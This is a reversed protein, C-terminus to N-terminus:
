EKNANRTKLINELNSRAQDLFSETNSLQKQISRENLTKREEQAKIKEMARGLYKKLEVIKAQYKPCMGCATADSSAASSEGISSLLRKRDESIELTRRTVQIAQDPTPASESDFPIDDKVKRLDELENWIELVQAEKSKIEAEFEQVITNHEAKTIWNMTFDAQYENVKQNLNEALMGNAVAQNEFDIKKMTEAQLTGELKYCRANLDAITLDAAQLRAEVKKELDDIVKKAAKVEANLSEKELKHAEIEGKREQLVTDQKKLLEKLCVIEDELVQNVQSIEDLDKKAAELKTELEPNSTAPISKNLSQMERLNAVSHRASTMLLDLSSGNLLSSLRGDVSYRGVKTSFELTKDIASRINFMTMESLSERIEKQQLLASLFNALEHLHNLTVGCLESCKELASDAVGQKEVVISMQSQLELVHEKTQTHEVAVLKNMLEDIRKQSIKKQEMAQQFKLDTFSDSLQEISFRTSQTM